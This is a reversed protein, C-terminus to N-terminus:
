RKIGKCKNFVDCSRCPAEDKHHIREKVLMFSVVIFTIDYLIDNISSDIVGYTVSCLMMLTPVIIISKYVKYHYVCFMFTVISVTLSLWNTLESLEYIM